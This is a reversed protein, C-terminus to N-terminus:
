QSHSFDRLIRFRGKSHLNELSKVSVQSNTMFLMDSISSTRYSHFKARMHCNSSNTEQFYAYIPLDLNPFGIGETELREKSESKLSFIAGGCSGGPSGLFDTHRALTRGVKLESPLAGKWEYNLYSSCGAWPIIIFVFLGFPM